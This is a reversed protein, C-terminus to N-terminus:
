LDEEHLISKLLRFGNLIQVFPCSYATETLFPYFVFYGVNACFRYVQRRVEKSSEAKKWFDTALGDTVDTQLLM